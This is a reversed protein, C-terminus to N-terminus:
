VDTPTPSEEDSDPSLQKGDIELSKVELHRKQAELFKQRERALANVRARRSQTAAYCYGAMIIVAPSGMTIFIWYPFAGLEPEELDEYEARPQAPLTAQALVPAATVGNFYDTGEKEGNEELLQQLEDAMDQVGENVFDEFTERDCGSCTGRVHTHVYNDQGPELRRWSSTRLQQFFVTADQLIITGSHVLKVVADEFIKIEEATMVRSVGKLRVIVVGEMVRPTLLTVTIEPHEKHFTELFLAIEELAAYEVISPDTAHTLSVTILSRAISCLDSASNCAEAFVAFTLNAVGHSCLCLV